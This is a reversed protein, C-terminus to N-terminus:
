IGYLKEIETKDRYEIVVQCAGTCFCPAGKSPCPAYVPVKDKLEEAIKAAPTYKNPAPQNPQNMEKVILPNIVIRKLWEDSSM